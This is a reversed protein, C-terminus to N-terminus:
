QDAPPENSAMDELIELAPPTRDLSQHSAPRCHSVPASEPEEGPAAPPSIPEVNASLVLPQSSVSSSRSSPRSSDDREQQLARRLKWSTSRDSRGPSQEAQRSSAAAEPPRREEARVRVDPKDSFTRSIISSIHDGLTSGPQPYMHSDFQRSHSSVPHMLRQNAQLIDETLKEAKPHESIVSQDAASKGDVPQNIQHTIIADILNAATFRANPGPVPQAAPQDKQFCQSFIRSTEQDMEARQQKSLQPQGPRREAPMGHEKAFHDRFLAMQPQGHLPYMAPHAPLFPSGAMKRGDDPGPMYAKRRSAAQKHQESDSWDPRSSPRRMDAASEQRQDKPSMPSRCDSENKIYGHPLRRDPM